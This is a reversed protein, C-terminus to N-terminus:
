ETVPHFVPLVPSDDEREFGVVVRLGLRLGAPDMGRLQGMARVGEDLEVTLLVYPSQAKFGIHFPHHCVTWSHVAGGGGAEAWDHAMSWCGDCVPRPYHRLKGCDGCRQILLAGRALGDWYPQTDPTPHPIPKAFTESM